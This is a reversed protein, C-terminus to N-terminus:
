WSNGDMLEVVHYLMQGFEIFFIFALALEAESALFDEGDLVGVFHNLIVFGM